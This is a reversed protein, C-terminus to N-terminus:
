PDLSGQYERATGSYVIYSRYYDIDVMQSSLVRVTWSLIDLVRGFPGVLRKTARTDHHVSRCRCGTEDLFWVIPRHRHELHGPTTLSSSSSACPPVAAFIRTDRLETKSKSLSIVLRLDPSWHSNTLYNTTHCSSFLLADNYGTTPSQTGPLYWLM